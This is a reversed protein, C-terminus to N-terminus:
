ELSGGWMLALQELFSRPYSQEWQEVLAFRDRELLHFVMLSEPQHMFLSETRDDNRYREYVHELKDHQDAAFTDLENGVQDSTNDGYLPMLQGIVQVSLQKDIDIGAAHTLRYFARELRAFVQDDKFDPMSMIEQRVRSIENDFLETLAVLRVAARKLHLPTSGVPKYILEHTTESWAHQACTHIQIECSLDAFARSTEDIEEPRLRVQCHIGQYGFEATSLREATDEHRVLDFMRRVMEVVEDRHDQYLLVIRVGAKDTIQTIPDAYNKRVAKKLMSDLTKARSTIECPVGIERTGDTVRECVYRAFAEHLPQKEEWYSRLEALGSM